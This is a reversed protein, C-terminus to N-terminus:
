AAVQAQPNAKEDKDCCGGNYADSTETWANGCHECFATTQDEIDISSICDAHDHLHRKIDDKIDNAESLAQQATMPRQRWGAMERTPVFVIVSYGDIRTKKAM